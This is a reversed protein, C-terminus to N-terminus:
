KYFYNIIVNDQFDGCCSSYVVVHHHCLKHIMRYLEIYIVISDLFLHTAFESTKIVSTVSLRIIICLLLENIVIDQFDGHFSLYQVM